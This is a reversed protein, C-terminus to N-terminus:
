TPKRLFSLASKLWIKPSHEKPGCKAHSKRQPCDGGCNEWFEVGFDNEVGM